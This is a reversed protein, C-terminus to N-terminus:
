VESWAVYGKHRCVQANKEKLQGGKEGRVASEQKERGGGWRVETKSSAESNGVKEKHIGGMTGWQRDAPVRIGRLLRGNKVPLFGGRPGL